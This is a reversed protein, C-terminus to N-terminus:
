LLREELCLIRRIAVLPFRQQISTYVYISKAYTIISYEQSLQKKGTEFNVEKTCKVYTAGNEKMEEEMTANDITVLNFHM